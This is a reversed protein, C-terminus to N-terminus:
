HESGTGMTCYVRVLTLPTAWLALDVEVRSVFKAYCAYKITEGKIADVFLGTNLIVSAKYLETNSKYTFEQAM